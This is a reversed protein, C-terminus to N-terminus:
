KVKDEVKKIKEQLDEKNAFISFIKLIKWAITLVLKIKRM